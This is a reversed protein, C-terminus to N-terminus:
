PSELFTNGDQVKPTNDWLWLLFLCCCVCHALHPLKSEKDLWEGSIVAMLHRLAADSYREQANLVNKWNDRAYKQKGFMMVKVVYTLSQVPLLSWELKGQDDKRGEEVKSM